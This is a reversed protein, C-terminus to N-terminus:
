ERIPETPAIYNLAKDFSCNALFHRLQADLHIRNERTWSSIAESVDKLAELHEEPNRDRWAHDVIIALRRRLLDALDSHM